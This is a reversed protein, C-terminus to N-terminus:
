AKERVLRTFAEKVQIFKETSGGRDPHYKLVLRRYVRTLGKKDLNKLQTESLGMIQCARALSPGQAPPPRFVRHQNIFDELYEAEPSHAEFESDFYMIVYKVLYDSLRDSRKEDGLFGRDQDLRCIEMVFFEGVAEPDLGAPMFRLPSKPFFRQLDLAAYVYAKRERFRLVSELGTILWEIEDRSKDVVQDFCPYPRLLAPGLDMRGYRLFFLRRKDFAHVGAQRQARQARPIKQLSTRGRGEFQRIRAQLDLPIFRLFLRDLERADYNETRAEIRGAIEPDLYYSTASPFHLHARPDPGLTMVERSSWEGARRVSERIVYDGNRHRALYM